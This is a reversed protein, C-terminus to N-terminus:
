YFQLIVILFIAKSMFHFSQVCMQINKEYKSQRQLCLSAQLKLLQRWSKGQACHMLDALLRADPFVKCLVVATNHPPACVIRLLNRRSIRAWM